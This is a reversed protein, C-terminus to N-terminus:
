CLGRKGHFRELSAALEEATGRVEIVLSRMTINFIAVRSGVFARRECPWKLSSVLETAPKSGEAQLWVLLLANPSWCFVQGKPVLPLIQKRALDQLISGAVKEGHRERIVPLSDGVFLATYIGTASRDQQLLSALYEVAEARSPMDDSFRLQAKHAQQIQRGLSDIVVKAKEQDGRGEEKVARVIKILEPRLVSIDDLRAVASLNAELHKRRAETQESGATVYSLAENLIDLLNRFDAAREREVQRLRNQYTSLAEEIKTACDSSVGPGGEVHLDKRVSEMLEFLDAYTDGCFVSRRVAAIARTAVELYSEPRTEDEALASGDKGINLFKNLTVISM